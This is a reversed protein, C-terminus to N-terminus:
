NTRNKLEPSLIVLSHCRLFFRDCIFYVDRKFIICSLERPFSPFEVHSNRKFPILAITNEWHTSLELMRITSSVVFAKKEGGLADDDVRDVRQRAYLKIDVKAIIYGGCKTRPM